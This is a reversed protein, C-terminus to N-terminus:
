AYIFTVHLRAFYCTVKILSWTGQVYVGFCVGMLNRMLAMSELLVFTQVDPWIHRYRRLM